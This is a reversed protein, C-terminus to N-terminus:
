SVAEPLRITFCAGRGPGTQVSLTGGFDAVIDRSIVLGLGLGRPKTTVFPTYLAAMVSDPLGPGNDGVEIAVQDADRVARIWIRPGPTQELAEIANQLLNVLVQELRVREARVALGDGIGARELAIGHRRM